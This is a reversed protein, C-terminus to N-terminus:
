PSSAGCSARHAVDIPPTHGAVVVPTELNEPPGFLHEQLTDLLTAALFAWDDSASVCEDLLTDLVEYQWRVDDDFAPARLGVLHPFHGCAPRGM